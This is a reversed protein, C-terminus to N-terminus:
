EISCDLADQYFSVPEDHGVATKGTEKWFQVAKDYENSNKVSLILRDAKEPEGAERYCYGLRNLLILKIELRYISEDNWCSEYEKFREFYPVANEYEQLLLFDEGMSWLVECWLFEDYQDPIEQDISWGLKEFGKLGYSLSEEYEEAENFYCCALLDYRPNDFGREWAMRVFFMAADLQGDSWCQEAASELDQRTETPITTSSVIRGQLQPAASPSNAAAYLFLIIVSLLKM